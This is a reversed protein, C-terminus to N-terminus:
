RRNTLRWTSGIGFVADLVNKAAQHGIYMDFDYLNVMGEQMLSAYINQMGIVRRCVLNTPTMQELITARVALTRTSGAQSGMTTIDRRFVSAANAM